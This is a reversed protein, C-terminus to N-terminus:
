YTRDKKKAPGFTKTCLKIQMQVGYFRANKLNDLFLRLDDSSWDASHNLIVKYQRIEFQDRSKKDIHPSRIVTFRQVKLPLTYKSFASPKSSSVTKSEIHSSAHSIMTNLQHLAKEVFCYEFAKLSIQIKHSLATM